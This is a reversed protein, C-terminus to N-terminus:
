QMKLKQSSRFFNTRCHTGCGHGEEGERGVERRGGEVRWRGGM